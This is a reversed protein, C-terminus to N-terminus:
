DKFIKKQLFAFEFTMELSTNRRRLAHTMLLNVLNAWM